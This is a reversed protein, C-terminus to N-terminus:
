SFIEQMRKRDEPHWRSNSPCFRNDKSNSYDHEQVNWSQAGCASSLAMVNVSVGRTDNKDYIYGRSHTPDSSCPLNSLAGRSIKDKDVREAAVNPILLDIWLKGLAPELKILLKEM